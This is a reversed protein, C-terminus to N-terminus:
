KGNSKLKYKESKIAKVFSPPFHGNNLEENVIKELRKSTKRDQSWVDEEACEAFV